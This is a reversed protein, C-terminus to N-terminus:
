ELKRMLRLEGRIMSTANGQVAIKNRKMYIFYLNRTYILSNLSLSLSFVPDERHLAYALSIFSGIISLYWFVVPIVSERRKESEIWQIIFRSAFILTGTYGVFVWPDSNALLINQFKAAIIDYIAM